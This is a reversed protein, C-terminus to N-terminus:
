TIHHKISDVICDPYMWGKQHIRAITVGHIALVTELCLPVTKGAWQYKYHHIVAQSKRSEPRNRLRSRSVNGFAILGTFRSNQEEKSEM